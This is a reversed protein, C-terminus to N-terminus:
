GIACLDIHTFMTVAAAGRRVSRTGVGSYGDHSQLLMIVSLFTFNFCLHLNVGTDNGVTGYLCTTVPPAAGYM